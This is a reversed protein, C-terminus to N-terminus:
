CTSGDGKVVTVSTPRSPILVRQGKKLLPDHQPNVELWRSDSKEVVVRGTAPFSAVFDALRSADIRSVKPAIEASKIQELLLSKIRGQVQAEEPVMWVLGPLYPIEASVQSQSFVTNLWQSLRMEQKIEAVTGAQAQQGSAAALLLGIILRRLFMQRHHFKTSM